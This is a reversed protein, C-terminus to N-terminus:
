VGRARVIVWTLGALYAVLQVATRAISENLGQRLVPDTVTRVAAGVNRGFMVALGLILVVLVAALVSALTVLGPTRRGLGAVALLGIGVVALPLNNMVATATAFEWEASGFGLPVFTLAVDFLAVIAFAGGLGALVGWEHGYRRREDADGSPADQASGTLVTM